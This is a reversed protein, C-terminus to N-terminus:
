RRGNDDVPKGRGNSGPPPSVYEAIWERLLRQYARNSDMGGDNHGGQLTIFQKPDNAAAHLRRGHAFPITADDPGHAVLVPCQVAKLTKVSDYRHRCLLRVPLLPFMQQGMDMTSTFSSEVVLLAPNHTAALSVAVAGGLSRGFIIIREPPIALEGTLYTWAAEADLRTGKETPKGSSRGYGRYDIILVNLGLEHFTQISGLRDSINGANGHFFLLAPAAAEDAAPVFWGAVTEGDATDLMVDRYDLNILSPDATIEPDPYYLYRAQALFVLLTLGVYVLLAIRLVVFLFGM